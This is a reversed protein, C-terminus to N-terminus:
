LASCVGIGPPPQFTTCTDTGADCNFSVCEDGSQCPAGNPKQVVCTGPGPPTGPRCFSSACEWSQRCSGGAATTGRLVEDCEAIPENRDFSACAQGRTASVCASAREGDFTVKGASIATRLEGLEEQYSTRTLADCSSRDTGIADQAGARQATSCCTYIRECFAEALGDALGDLSLEEGGCATAVLALVIQLHARHTSRRM